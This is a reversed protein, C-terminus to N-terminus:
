PLSSSKGTTRGRFYLVSNQLVYLLVPLQLYPALQLKRCPTPSKTFKAPRGTTLEIQLATALSSSPVSLGACERAKRELLVRAKSGAASSVHPMTM